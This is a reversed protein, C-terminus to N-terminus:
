GNVIAEYLDQLRGRLHLVAKHKYSLLTNIKAGREAALEKFSKGELETLVFIERQEPPLEALAAELAEWFLGALYEDEVTAAQGFFIQELDENLWGEEAYEPLQSETKKRSRDIIENRAAKFLWASVQEVPQLLTNVRVLQCVVEQFVDEMEALSAVRKRIFARLKGESAQIANELENNQAPESM